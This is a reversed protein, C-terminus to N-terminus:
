GKAAWARLEDLDFRVARGFKYVGPTGEPLRYLFERSLNLEKHARQIGVLQRRQSRIAAAENGGDSITVLGDRM